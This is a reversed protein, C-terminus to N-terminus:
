AGPVYLVVMRVGSSIVLYALGHLANGAGMACWFFLLRVVSLLSPACAAKNLYFGLGSVYDHDRM